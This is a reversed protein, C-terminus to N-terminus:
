RSADRQIIISKKDEIRMVSKAYIIVLRQEIVWMVCM